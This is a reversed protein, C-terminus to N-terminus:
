LTEDKKEAPPRPTPLPALFPTSGTLFYYERNFVGWPQHKITGVLVDNRRVGEWDEPELGFRSGTNTSTFYMGNCGVTARLVTRLATGDASTDEKITTPGVVCVVDERVVVPAPRVISGQDSPAAVVLLVLPPLTTALLNNRLFRYLAM